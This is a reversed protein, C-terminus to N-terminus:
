SLRTQSKTAQAIAAMLTPGRLVFEGQVQVTQPQMRGQAGAIANNPIIRGAANPVFVEPGREGVLVGQGANVGGGSARAGVPKINKVLQGIAVAAFGAALAIGPSILPNRLIKDLIGRVIAFKILARGIQQILDGIVNVISSAFNKGSIADGLSSAISEIAGGFSNKIDSSLAAIDKKLQEKYAIDVALVAKARALIPNRATLEAIEKELKSRLDQTEKPLDKFLDKTFEFRAEPFVNYKVRFNATVDKTKEIFALARQFTKNLSDRPDVDFQIDRISINDLFSALEKAKSITDNVYKEYADKQEKIRRKEEEAKLLRIDAAKLIRENRKEELQIQFDYLDQYTKKAADFYEKDKKSLKDVLSTPADRFTGFTALLQVADSSANEFFLSSAKNANAFSKEILSELGGIEESLQVIRTRSKLLSRDFDGTFNIDINRDALQLLFETQKSLAELSKKADDGAKALNYLEKNFEDIDSKGSFLKSGFSILLSSVVSLAVGIGAPGALGSALQKFATSTSGSEAKLRQFSELLPNLNNAIGIFGFPLDQAVRGVNILSQTAANSSKSVSGLPDRITSLSAIRSKTADIARNIRNFSEVNSTNKLANQFKKLQAELEALTKNFKTGDATIIGKLVNDAM